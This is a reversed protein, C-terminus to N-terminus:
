SLYQSSHVLNDANIFAKFSAELCLELDYLPLHQENVEAGVM